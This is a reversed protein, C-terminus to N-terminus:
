YIHEYLEEISNDKSFDSRESVHVLNQLPTAYVEIMRYQVSQFGSAPLLAMRYRLFQEREMGKIM